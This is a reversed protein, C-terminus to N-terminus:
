FIRQQASVAAGEGDSPTTPKGDGARPVTEGESLSLLYDLLRKALQLEPDAQLSQSLYQVAQLYYEAEAQSHLLEVQLRGLTYYILALRKPEDTSAHLGTLMVRATGLEGIQSLFQARNFIAVHRYSSYRALVKATPWMMLPPHEIDNLLKEYPDTYIALLRDLDERYWPAESEPSGPMADLTQLQTRLAEIAQRPAATFNREFNSWARAIESAPDPKEESFEALFAGMALEVKRYRNRQTSEVQLEFLVADAEALRAGYSSFFASAQLGGLLVIVGILM